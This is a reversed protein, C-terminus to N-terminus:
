VWEYAWGYHRLWLFAAEESFGVIDRFNYPPHVVVLGVSGTDLKTKEFILYCTNVGKTVALKRLNKM